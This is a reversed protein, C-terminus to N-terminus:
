TQVNIDEFWETIKHFRHIQSFHILNSSRILMARPETNGERVANSSVVSLMINFDLIITSANLNM